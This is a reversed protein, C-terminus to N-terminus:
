SRWASRQAPPRRERVIRSLHYVSDQIKGPPSHRGSTEALVHKGAVLASRAISGHTSAPTPIAIRQLQPDEFIGNLSDTVSLSPHDTTIRARAESEPDCVCSLVGLDYFNRIVNRGRHSAGVCDIM